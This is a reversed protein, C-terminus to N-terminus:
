PLLAGLKTESPYFAQILTGNTYTRELSVTRGRFNARHLGLGQLLFPHQMSSRGVAWWFVFAVGVGYGAGWEACM